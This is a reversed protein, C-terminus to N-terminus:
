SEVCVNGVVTGLLLLLLLYTIMAMTVLVIQSKPRPQAGDSMDCLQQWDLVGRSVQCIEGWQLVVLIKKELPENTFITIILSLM